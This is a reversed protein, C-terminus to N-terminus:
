GGPVEAPDILGHRKWGLSLLWTRARAVEPRALPGCGPTSGEAGPGGGPHPGRSRLTQRWGDFWRASSAEDIQVPPATGHRERWHKRANLLVYALANRVERPTRLVRLHYRGHLVRGTRGFARHVARAVRASIAKMGRGLAQKGAAEVLLHLHNRQVSYHVVRFGRRECAKSLSARLERLFGHTRLSPIERRVRLTVHSPYRPPVPPRGVHHIPPNASQPPRGAGPRPGGRGSRLRHDRFSLQKPPQYM